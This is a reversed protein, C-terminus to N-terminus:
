YRTQSIVGRSRLKKIVQRTCAELDEDGTHLVLDPREPIEYPSTIGTFEPLHGSRAKKYNGKIDRSECIELSADCFIEIFEGSEMKGRARERDVLYPSIFATLVIVGAEMFLKAIESIRRINEHRDESSFGLDGCLGHRLNDGDMVFTNCGLLYLEKEVEHALTSKGSGSLGTLWVVAGKHGNKKERQSQSIGFSM